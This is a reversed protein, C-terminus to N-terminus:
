IAKKKQIRQSSSIEQYGQPNYTPQSLYLDSIEVETAKQYDPKSGNQSLMDSKIPYLPIYTRSCNEETEDGLQYRQLEVKRKRYNNYKKLLYTSGLLTVAVIMLNKMAKNKM